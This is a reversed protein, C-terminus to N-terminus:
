HFDSLSHTQTKRPSRGKRQPWTVGASPMVDASTEQRQQETYTLVTEAVKWGHRHTIGDYKEVRETDAELVRKPQEETMYM